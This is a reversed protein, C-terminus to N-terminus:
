RTDTTPPITNSISFAPRLAKCITPSIFLDLRFPLCVFDADFFYTEKIRAGFVNPHMKLGEYLSTSGARAAGIILFDPLLHFSGIFDTYKEYFSKAIKYTTNHNSLINAFFKPTKQLKELQNNEKNVEQNTLRKIDNM